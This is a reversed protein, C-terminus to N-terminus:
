GRTTLPRGSQPRTQRRCYGSRVDAYATNDPLAILSAWAQSWAEISEITLRLEPESTAAALREANRWAGERWAKITELMSVEDLPSPRADALTFVPDYRVALEQEISDFVSKLIDNVRDHDPKHSGVPGALGM